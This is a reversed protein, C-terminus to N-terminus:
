TNANPAAPDDLSRSTRRAKRGRHRKKDRMKSPKADSPSMNISEQTMMMTDATAQFVMNDNRPKKEYSALISRVLEGSETYVWNDGRADAGPMLASLSDDTLTYNSGPSGNDAVNWNAWSIGYEDLKRIWGLTRNADVRCPIHPCGNGWESAFLPIKDAVEDILDKMYDHYSYAAYFHVSYAINTGNVLGEEFPVDIRQSWMPTGVIILNNAGQERIVAVVQDAYAKIDEWKNGWWPENYVEFIVNPTDKYKAAVERFFEMAASRQPQRHAWHSHWDIIVYMGLEICTEVVTMVREKNNKTENADLYTGTLRPKFVDMENAAPFDVGLAARVLTVGSWSAIKRTAEANFFKAGAWNSNSWYMSMGRLQVVEGTTKSVIRNGADNVSLWGWQEVATVQKTECWEGSSPCCEAALSCWAGVPAYRLCNDCTGKHCLKGTTEPIDLTPCWTYGEDVCSKEHWSYFKCMPAIDYCSSCDGLRCCAQGHGRGVWAAILVLHRM